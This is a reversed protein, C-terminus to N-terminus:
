EHTAGKLRSEYLDQATDTEWEKNIFLPLDEDKIRKIIYEELDIYEPDNEIFFELFRKYDWGGTIQEYEEIYIEDYKLKWDHEDLCVEEDVIEGDETKIRYEGADNGHCIWANKFKLEPFQPAINYLWMNPAAWETDFSLLLEGDNNENVVLPAKTTKTGYNNKRWVYWDPAKYHTKLVDNKVEESVNDPIPLIKEFDIVIRQEEEDEYCVADYFKNISEEPGRICLYNYVIDAM